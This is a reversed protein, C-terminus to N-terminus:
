NAVRLCGYIEYRKHKFAYIWYAFWYGTALGVLEYLGIDLHAYRPNIFFISCIFM